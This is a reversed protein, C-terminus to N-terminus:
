TSSRPQERSGSVAVGAGLNESVRGAGAVVADAVDPLENRDLRSAAGVVTLAAVTRGAHDRVPASVARVGDLYEEDDVAYGAAEVSSLEDLYGDTDTITRPTYTPLRRGTVLARRESESRAALLVKAVSGAFAPLRHGVPAVVKLQHRSEAADLVSAEVGGADPVHLIATEATTERLRVLAPRAARVLDLGGRAADGLQVLAHGLRFAGTAPDREVFRHEGLTALLDSLSSKSLELQRSLQTLTLGTTGDQSLTRLVLVARGVAPVRSGRSGGTTAASASM